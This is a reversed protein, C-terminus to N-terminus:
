RWRARGQSVSSSSPSSICNWAFRRSGHTSGAAAWDAPAGARRASMGTMPELVFRLALGTTTYVAAAGPGLLYGLVLADSAYLLLHGVSAILLWFTQASFTGMVSRSPREVGFWPVGSRAVTCSVAGMALAGVLNAVVLGVLGLGLWVAGVNLASVFGWSAPGRGWRATSSIRAAFWM